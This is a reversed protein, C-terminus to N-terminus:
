PLLDSAPADSRKWAAVVRLPSIRRFSILPNRSAYTAHNSSYYLSRNLLGKLNVPSGLHWETARSYAMKFGLKLFRRHFDLDEDAYLDSDFGGVSDFVERKVFRIAVNLPDYSLIRRRSAILQSLRSGSPIDQNRIVVGDASKIAELCSSIVNPELKFDSDVFYLYEGKAFKAGWNKQASRGDDHPLVTAGLTKAIEVTSDTSFSDVVIIEIPKHLQSIVSKLCDAITNESNRSPIVVSVLPTRNHTLERTGSVHDSREEQRHKLVASDLASRDTTGHNVETM